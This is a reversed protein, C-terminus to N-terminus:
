PHEEVWIEGNATRERKWIPTTSKLEDIAWQCASFANRRHEAAAVILVINEGIKLEGVRHIITMGLLDFRQIAQERIAQLTREAMQPYHEFTIWVVARGQSRERATGLFVAIGGIKKSTVKLRGIEEDMSFDERQIRVSGGSGGSFPPLFAVEDGDKVQTEENGIEQNVAVLIKGERLLDHVPMVSEGIARLIDGITIPHNFHVKDEARGVRDKLFAFYKLTIM